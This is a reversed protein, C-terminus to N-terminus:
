FLSPSSTTLDIIWRFLQVIGALVILGILVPWFYGTYQGAKDRVKVVQVQLKQIPTSPSAEPTPEPTPLTIEKDPFPQTENLVIGEACGPLATLLCGGILCLQILILKKSLMTPKM